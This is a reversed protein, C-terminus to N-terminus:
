PTAQWQVIRDPSIRLLPRDELAMARYQPYRERLAELAAAREDRDEVLVAQGRVQLWALQSWDEEYRDVVLCVHPNSRVNRLRRLEEPRGRKPKEDIAIYIHGSQVVFCVPVNHPRGHADVTALHGTRQAHLFDIHARALQM